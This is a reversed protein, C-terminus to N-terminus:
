LAEVLAWDLDRCGSSLGHLDGYTCVLTWLARFQCPAVYPLSQNQLPLSVHLSATPLRCRIMLVRANRALITLNLDALEDDVLWVSLSVGFPASLDVEVAQADPRSVRLTSGSVQVQGVDFAQEHHADGWKEGEIESICRMSQTPVPLLAFSLSVSELDHLRPTTTCVFDTRHDSADDPRAEIFELGWLQPAIARSPERPDVLLGIEDGEELDDAVYRWAGFREQFAIREEGRHVSWKVEVSRDRRKVVEGRCLAGYILLAQEGPDVSRKEYRESLELQWAWFHLLGFTTWPMFFSIRTLLTNASDSGLHDGLYVDLWEGFYIAIMVSIALPALKALFSFAFSTIPTFTKLPSILATALWTALTVGM